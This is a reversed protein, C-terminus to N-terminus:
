RKEKTKAQLNGNGNKRDKQVQEIFAEFMPRPVFRRNYRFSYENVYNQLYKADVHKYVGRIGGKMLSWFGEITNTHVGAFSWIKLRHNISDHKYGHAPLSQYGSWEDTFVTSREEVTEKIFPLITKAKNDPVVKARVRGEREVAGAVITKKDKNGSGVGKQKGGVWTEDAEVTGSLKVDESLMSRIQHFMRWATKYTVGLERELQKASIGCRTSAMLYIAYFWLRLPTSSKHYITDATPHVHLGCFQCSFSKRSKVRYHNTIKQCTECFIGDPYLYDKLWELCADDNPFQKQFDMLTYRQTKQQNNREFM